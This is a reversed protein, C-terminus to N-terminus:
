PGTDKALGWYPVKGYEFVRKARLLPHEVKARVRAKLKEAVAEASEPDLIRRKGPRMAVQGDLELGQNGEGKHVGQYRADAWVMKERGDMLNHTETIDHANASTVRMNLAVGTKSDM